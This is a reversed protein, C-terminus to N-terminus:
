QVTPKIKKSLAERINAFNEGTLQQFINTTSEPGIMGEMKATQTIVDAAEKLKGQELLRQTIDRMEGILRIKSHQAPSSKNEYYEKSLRDHLTKFASRRQHNAADEPGLFQGFHSAATALDLREEIMLKIADIYWPEGPLSKPMSPGNHM